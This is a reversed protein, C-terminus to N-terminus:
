RALLESKKIIAKNKKLLKQFKADLQKVQLTYEKTNKVERLLDKLADIKNVLSEKTKLLKQIDDFGITTEANAKTKLHLSANKILKEMEDYEKSTEKLKFEILLM